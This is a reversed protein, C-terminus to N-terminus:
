AFLEQVGLQFGDLGPVDLVADISFKSEGELTFVQVERAEPDVAWYVPVGNRVYLRRKTELDYDRNSPSLVEVIWDPAGRVGRESIIETRESSIFMFDPQVTDEGPLLLDMPAFVLQGVPHTELYREVFGILKRLIMQHTWTPSPSVFIDGGILERRKGDEPWLELDRRVFSIRKKELAQTMTATYDLKSALV